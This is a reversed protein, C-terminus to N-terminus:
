TVTFMVTIISRCGEHISDNRFYLGLFAYANKDLGTAAVWYGVRDHEDEQLYARHYFAALPGGPGWLEERARELTALLAARFEYFRAVGMAGEFTMTATAMGVKEMVAALQQAVWAAHPEEIEGNREAVRLADHVRQAVVHGGYAPDAESAGVSLGKPGLLFVWGKRVPQEAAVHKLYREIQDQPGKEPSSTVTLPAAVKVEVIAFVAPYAWELVLDCRGADPTGTAIWVQTRVAPHGEPLRRGPGARELAEALCRM